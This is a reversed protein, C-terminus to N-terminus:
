GAKIGAVSEPSLLIPPGSFNILWLFTYKVIIYENMSLTDICRVEFAWQFGVDIWLCCIDM